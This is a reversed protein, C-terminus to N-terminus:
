EWIRVRDGWGLVFYSFILEDSEGKTRIMALKRGQTITYCLNGMKLSKIRVDEQMDLGNSFRTVELVMDQKRVVALMKKPGIYNRVKFVM